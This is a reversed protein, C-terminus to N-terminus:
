SNPEHCLSACLARCAGSRPKSVPKSPSPKPKRAQPSKNWRARAALRAIRSRERSKLKTRRAENGLRSLEMLFAPFARRILKKGIRAERSANYDPRVRKEWRPAMKQAAEVDEVIVMKVALAQLMPGLSIPGLSRVGLQGLIKGCYGSQLGTLNDLTAHTINLETVRDRLVAILGDYDVASGIIRADSM